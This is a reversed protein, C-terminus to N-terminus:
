AEGAAGTRPWSFGFTSGQGPTSTLWVRGGRAEVLKRVVSLGIGTGEVKDRSELTQFIAWIREHYEPAIGPGNDTVTFEYSDDAESWRVAVDVDPRHAMGHKVANGILNMFVQQFVVREAMVVPMAEQVRITVGDPPALLEISEAVVAGSDLLQPETRARGARSYALIGDILAEMRRVRGQLLTMYEATEDPLADGIDDRIWQALNAIGRLPAKLDHSAVYAFHDLERYAAAAEEASQEADYRSAEAREFETKLEVNSDELREMLTQLEAAQEQLEITQEELMASQQQLEENLAALENARRAAEERAARELALRIRAEEAERRDTLDRTVKVFGLLRGGEGHLPTLVVNAWFRSGDKRVRWGEDEYRGLRVAEDLEYEPFAASRADEPYFVSVSRGIIEAETYGKIARAGENWSAVRGDADLLFIAYDKVTNVMLRFREESQRLTEEARRRETLDRTVKTYGCLRGDDDRIPSLVISAWFRTGDKRVRWGEDEVRGEELAIRLLREPRGSAVDEETYFRSFHEGVIEDRTYGKIREAGPNWNVVYGDPDIAYIAYDTVARVLQRYLALSDGERVFDPPDGAELNM